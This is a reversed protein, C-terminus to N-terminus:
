NWTTKLEVLITGGSGERQSPQSITRLLGSVASAQLDQISIKFNRTAKNTFSEIYPYSNLSSPDRIGDKSGRTLRDGNAFCTAAFHTPKVVDHPSLNPSLLLLDFQEQLKFLANAGGRLRRRRLIDFMATKPSAFPSLQDVDGEIKSDQLNRLLKHPKSM